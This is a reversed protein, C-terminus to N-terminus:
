DHPGNLCGPKIQEPLCAHALVHYGVNNV